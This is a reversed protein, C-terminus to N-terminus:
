IRKIQKLSIDYLSMADKIYKSNPYKDICEQYYEIVQRYRENQLSEVSSKALEFQTQVKLFHAEEQYDSDPYDKHFNEIAVLAAKYRRVQYYQKAILYAKKELKKRLEVLVKEVDDSHPSNTYYDLFGECAIIAENTKSQDVSYRDTDLYASKVHMYYAEEVKQSYGFTEYFTKFYHKSLYYQKSYYHTYAYLFHAEEAQLQGKMVPVLEELLAGAKYYDRKAYYEKAAKYRVQWDDNKLVKQFKSCSSLIFVLCIVTYIKGINLM